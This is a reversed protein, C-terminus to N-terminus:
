SGSDDNRESAGLETYVMRGDRSESKYLCIRGIKEFYSAFDFNGTDSCRRILTVHAKFPKSDFTLGKKVLENRLRAIYKQFEAEDRILINAYLIDGFYGSGKVAFETDPVPVSQLAELAAGTKDSPTEGLFILTMHLNEAPQYRGEIGSAKLKTLADQLYRGKNGEMPMAIFLRVMESSKNEERNRIKNVAFHLRKRIKGKAEKQWAELGPLDKEKGEDAITGLVEVAVDPNISKLLAISKNKNRSRDKRYIESCERVYTYKEIEWGRETYALLPLRYDYVIKLYGSLIMWDVREEVADLSLDKYFGYAPNKDMGKELLKKERSGKLTKVLMNRGGKMILDDAARLIMEIDERPLNKVNGKDLAYSVRRVKKAMSHIDRGKQREAAEHKRPSIVPLQLLVEHGTM